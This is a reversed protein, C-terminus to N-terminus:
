TVTGDEGASALRKGDPSFCVGSVKNSHRLTRVEQGTDADWIKATTDSSASALLRGDPSFCIDYVAREHGQLTLLDAHCLRKVYRWEWGRLGQPCEDLLQEARVVENNTWEVHARGVRNIYLALETRENARDAAANAKQAEALLRSQEARQQAE